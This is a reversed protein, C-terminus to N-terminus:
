ATTKATADGATSNQASTNKDFYNHQYTSSGGDAGVFGKDEPNTVGEYSVSGTSYCYEITTAGANGGCFGGFGTESGSKRTVNARSYSNSTMSNANAGVLGGVYKNGSVEGTSYSNSITSFANVGVLGGVCENGSVEGTSYSNSITSFANAGVLGGVNDSGTINCNVIGINEITARITAMSTYGFLGVDEQNPRNIYLNSITHGNGNFKGKFANNGNGIPSFGAGNNWSQTASADIDNDLEFKDTWSSSNESIWKLHALTSVNRYGNNDTDTPETQTWSYNTAVFIMLAILIFKKMDIGYIFKFFLTKM